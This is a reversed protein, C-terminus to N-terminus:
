SSAAEMNPGCVPVYCQVGGAQTTYKLRNDADCCSLVAQEPNLKVRTIEMTIWKMKKKSNRSSGRHASVRKAKPM